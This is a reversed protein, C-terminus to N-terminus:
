DVRAPDNLAIIMGGLGVSIQSGVQVIQLILGVGKQNELTAVQGGAIFTPGAGTVVYTGAIDSPHRLKSARGVLQVSAVGLLGIRGASLRYRKGYYTLTGTGGGQGVVSGSKVINLRVKGTQAYSEASAGAVIAFAAVLSAIFRKSPILRSM